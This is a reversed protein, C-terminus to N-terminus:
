ETSLSSIYTFTVEFGAVKKLGLSKEQGVANVIEIQRRLGSRVFHAAAHLYTRTQWALSTNRSTQLLQKPGLAKRKTSTQDLWIATLDLEVLSCYCRNFILM